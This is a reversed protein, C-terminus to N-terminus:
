YCGRREHIKYLPEDQLIILILILFHGLQNITVNGMVMHHHLAKIFQEYGQITLVHCEQLIGCQYFMSTMVETLVKFCKEQLESFLPKPTWYSPFLDAINDSAVRNLILRTNTWPSRRIVLMTPNWKDLLEPDIKFSQNTRLMIVDKLEMFSKELASMRESLNEAIQSQEQRIEAVPINVLQNHITQLEGKIDSVLLLQTRSLSEVLSTPSFLTLPGTPRPAAHGPNQTTTTTTTSSSSASKRPTSTTDIGTSPTSYTHVLTNPSHTSPPPTDLLTFNDM